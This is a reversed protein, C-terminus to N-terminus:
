WLGRRAESHRESDKLKKKEQKRQSLWYSFGVGLGFGAILLFINDVFGRLLFGIILGIVLSILSIMIKTKDLM